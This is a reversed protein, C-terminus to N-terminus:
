DLRWLIRCANGRHNWDAALSGRRDVRGDTFDPRRLRSFQDRGFADTGMLFIRGPDDVGFLHLRSPFIGALKYASGREFFHVPYVQTSDTAYIGSNAPDNKLGYVFPRAHFKGQADVFHIRTPPAFALERNHTAFDYPAFFGAFFVLAHFCALLILAGWLKHRHTM